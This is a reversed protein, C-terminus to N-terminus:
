DVVRQISEEEVPLERRRPASGIGSMDSSIGLERRALRKLEHFATPLV